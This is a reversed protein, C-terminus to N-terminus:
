TDPPTDQQEEVSAVNIEESIISSDDITNDSIAVGEHESPEYVPEDYDQHRVEESNEQENTMEEMDNPHNQSATDEVHYTDEIEEHVTGPELDEFRDDSDTVTLFDEVEPQPEGALGDAELDHDTHVSEQLLSQIQEKVEDEVNQIDAGEPAQEELEAHTEAEEEPPFTRESPSREKLGDVGDATESEEEEEELMEFPTMIDYLFSLFGYFWDSSEEALITLVEELSDINENSGDKTLGLLVKADDVDFDGDGDADYVGLKGQLVESLNYRFDKAKALVEEYDVLDFWVVAVSTWVGLLAIVMFWTFFSGGSIGGRRGNKHGGHKAERRAGPSSSSGSSGTSPSGSGSGSGSGSSSSNGGGGKANKRPAM